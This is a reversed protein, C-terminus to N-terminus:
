VGAEIRVPEFRAERVKMRRFVDFLKPSVLILPPAFWSQALDTPHRVSRGFCEWTRAADPLSELNLNEEDYVIEAPVNAAHYHGDRHCKPCPPLKESRIIGTTKASMEPLQPGVILQFWSLPKGDPHSLVQRLELGAAGTAGMATALREAVIFEGMGAECIMGKKPAVATPLFLPSTQVAGTGCRSCADCLEYRAGYKPGTVDIEARDVTLCLLRSECLEDDSYEHELRESYTVANCRAFERV